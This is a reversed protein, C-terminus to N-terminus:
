PLSVFSLDVLCQLIIPVEAQLISIDPKLKVFPAIETM